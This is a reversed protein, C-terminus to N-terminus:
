TTSCPVTVCTPLTAPRCTSIQSEFAVASFDCRDILRTILEVKIELTKGGGHTADEGLLVVEKDCVDRVVRDL